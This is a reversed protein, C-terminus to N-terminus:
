TRLLPSVFNLNKQGIDQILKNFLTIDAEIKKIIDLLHTFLDVDPLYINNCNLNPLAFLWMPLEEFLVCIEECTM